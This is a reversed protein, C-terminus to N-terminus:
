YKSSHKKSELLFQLCGEELRQNGNLLTKWASPIEFLLSEAMRLMRSFDLAVNEGGTREPFEVSHFEAKFVM